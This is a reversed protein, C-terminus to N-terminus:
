SCRTCSRWRTGCGTNYLQLASLLFSSGPRLQAFQANCRTEIQFLTKQLIEVPKYMNFDGFVVVAGLRLNPLAHCVQMRFMNMKKGADLVFLDVPGPFSQALTLPTYGETESIKGRFAEATPYVPLVLDKWVDELDQWRGKAKLQAELSVKGWETRGFKDFVLLRPAAGDPGLSQGGANQRAIERAAAVGDRLGFALCRTSAGAWAGYEVVVGGGGRYSAAVANAAQFHLFM